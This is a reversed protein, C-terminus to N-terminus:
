SRLDPRAHNRDVATSNPMRDSRGAISFPLFKQLRNGIRKFHSFIQARQKKQLFRIFQHNVAREERCLTSWSFGAFRFLGNVIPPHGVLRRVCKVLEFSPSSGLVYDMRGQRFYSRLRGGAAGTLRHHYIPIDLFARIDWDQMQASTEAYSDEGGYKFISYGGIALYCDRRLLQAAHPVSHESNHERCEFTGERQEYIGGSVIGLSADEELRRMLSEFYNPELTIDADLNGIYDYTVGEFMEFASRLAYGKSAFSRGADRSLRRYAIFPLTRAYHLILEDTRDNSGDSIIAWRVPKVTQAAVAEMTRTIYEEENHAATM